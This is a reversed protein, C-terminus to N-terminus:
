VEDFLKVWKVRIGQQYHLSMVACSSADVAQSAWDTFTSVCNVVVLLLKDHGPKRTHFYEPFPRCRSCVQFRVLSSIQLWTACGPWDSQPEKDGRTCVASDSHNIHDVWHVTDTWHSTIQRGTKGSSVHRTGSCKLEGGWWLRYRNILTELNWFRLNLGCVGADTYIIYKM